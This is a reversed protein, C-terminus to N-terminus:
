TSQEEGGVLMRRDSLLRDLDLVVVLDRTTSRIPLGSESATEEFREAIEDAYIERLGLLSDALIGLAEGRREVIAMFRRPDRSEPDLWRALDITALLESRVQVIGPMWEPLGPLPTVVPSRVIERLGDVPVGFRERGVAIVAVIVDPQRRQDVEAREALRKARQDLKERYRADEDGGSM